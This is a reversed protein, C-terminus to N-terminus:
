EWENRLNKQWEVPDEIETFMPKASMEKILAALKEKAIIDNKFPTKNLQM